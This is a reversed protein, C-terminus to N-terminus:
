VSSLPRESVRGGCPSWVAKLLFTNRSARWTTSLVGRKPEIRLRVPAGGLHFLTGRWRLLSLLVLLDRPVKKLYTGIFVRQHRGGENSHSPTKLWTQQALSTDM